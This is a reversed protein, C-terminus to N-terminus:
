GKLGATAIGQVIHKQAFLFIIWAEGVGYKQGPVLEDRIVIRVDVDATIIFILSECM